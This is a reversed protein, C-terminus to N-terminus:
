NGGRYSLIMGEQSELEVRKGMFSSIKDRSEIVNRVGMWKTSYGKEHNALDRTLTLFGM